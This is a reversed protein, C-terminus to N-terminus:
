GKDLHPSNGSKKKLVPVIAMIAGFLAIMGAISLIQLRADLRNPLLGLLGIFFAIALAVYGVIRLQSLDNAHGVEKEFDVPTFMKRYFAAVREKYAPSSYRWFFSTFAFSIAGATFITFVSRAYSFNGWWAFLSFIAAYCISVLASWPPTKRLFFAMFMPVITPTGFLSGFKLMYDFLGRGTQRAMHLSFIIILVGVGITVIQGVWLMERESARPHIYPKYVDQTMMAACSNLQTDLSTITASFMAVVVLGVLGRPLLQLSIIAYSAEAPQSINQAINGSEVLHSFQLRAVIPPIFWLIAGFLMLIGALAAAKRAERGDKCAFYKLASGMSNYAVLVFLVMAAAWSSTFKSGPSSDVLRLMDNMERARIMELLGSLGGVAKLSLITILLAMPMLILAQLFDTAMISWTGAVLSYLIVVIGLVIILLTMNFGFVASTFVAVGLLTLANMLLGPVISIWISFQATLTDFREKIVEPFTTARMQRF